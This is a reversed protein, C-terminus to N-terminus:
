FVHIIGHFPNIARVVFVAREHIRKRTNFIVKKKNEM